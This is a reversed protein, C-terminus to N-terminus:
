CYKFTVLKLSETENILENNVQFTSFLKQQHVSLRLWKECLVYTQNYEQPSAVNLARRNERNPKLICHKITNNFQLIPLVELYIM